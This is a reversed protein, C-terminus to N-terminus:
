DQQICRAKSTLSKDVDGTIKIGHFIGATTVILRSGKQSSAWCLGGTRSDGAWDARILAASPGGRRSVKDWDLWITTTVGLSQVAVSPKSRRNSRFSRSQCCTPGEAPTPHPRTNGLKGAEETGCLLSPAPRLGAPM